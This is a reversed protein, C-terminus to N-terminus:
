IKTELTSHYASEVCTKISDVQVAWSSLLDDYKLKLSQFWDREVRAEVPNLRCWGVLVLWSSAPLPLPLLQLPMDLNYHRLHLNFAFNSLLEDYKLKLIQFWDREVRAEIPNL